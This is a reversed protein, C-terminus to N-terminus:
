IEQLTFNGSGVQVEGGDMGPQNSPNCPPSCSPTQPTWGRWRGRWYRHSGQARAQDQDEEAPGSGPAVLKLAPRCSRKVGTSCKECNDASNRFTLNRVCVIVQTWFKVGFVRLKRSIHIQSLIRLGAWDLDNHSQNAVNTTWNSIKMSNPNFTFTGLNFDGWQFISNLTQAVHEPTQPLIVGVFSATKM